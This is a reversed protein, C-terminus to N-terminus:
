KKAWTAAVKALCDGLKEILEDLMREDCSARLKFIMERVWRADDPKLNRRRM